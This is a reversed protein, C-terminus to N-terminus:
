FSKFFHNLIVPTERFRDVIFNGGRVMYDAVKCNVFAIFFMYKHFHDFPGLCRFYESYSNKFYFIRLVVRINM